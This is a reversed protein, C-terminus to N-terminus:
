ASRLGIAAGPHVPDLDGGGPLPAYHDFQMTCQGRGRTMGRLRSGYGLLEKFPVTAHIVWADPRSDMGSISGRRSNLDGIVDGIYEEPTLVEVRMVPELLQPGAKAMGARFAARAATEFTMVNSDVDHYAGDILSAKFDITPYGAYVGTDLASKLGKEVGRVFEPPVSGGIIENEFEFGSGRPLPEFRIKVRAFEGTSGTVKKHTYDYEVTRTITERYAIEPQGVSLQVNFVRILRDIAIELHAESTGKLLFMGADAITNYALTPDEAALRPL